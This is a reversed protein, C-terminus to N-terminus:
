TSATCQGACFTAIRLVAVEVPMDHETRALDQLTVLRPSAILTSVQQRAKSVMSLDRVYTGEYGAIKLALLNHVM